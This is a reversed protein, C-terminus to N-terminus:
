LKRVPPASYGAAELEQLQPKGHNGTGESQSDLLDEKLHNKDPYKIVAVFLM